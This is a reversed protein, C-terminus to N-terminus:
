IRLKKNMARSLKSRKKQKEACNESAAAQLDDGAQGALETVAQEAQQRGSHSRPVRDLFARGAGPTLEIRERLRALKELQKEGNRVLKQGAALTDHIKKNDDAM